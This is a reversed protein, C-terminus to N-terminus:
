HTSHQGHEFCTRGASLLPLRYQVPFPRWPPRQGPRSPHSLLRRESLPPAHFPVQAASNRQFVKQKLAECEEKLVCGERPQRCPVGPANGATDSSRRCGHQLGLLLHIGNVTVRASSGASRHATLFSPALFPSFTHGRPRPESREQCNQIESM